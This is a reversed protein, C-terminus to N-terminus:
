TIEVGADRAVKVLGDRMAEIFEPRKRDYSRYVYRGDKLFPRRGRQGRAKGARAGIQGGFDLWPYYPARNGGARVRALKQTSAVKLSGRARGSRRPIRPRADDAVIDAAENFALRVAKALDSDMDKLGKVFQRLGQIKVPEAVTM